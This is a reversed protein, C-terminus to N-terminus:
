EDYLGQVDKMGLDLMDQFDGAIGYPANILAFVAAETNGSSFVSYEDVLSGKPSAQNEMSKSKSTHEDMAILENWIKKVFEIPSNKSLETYQAQEQDFEEQTRKLAEALHDPSTTVMPSGTRTMPTVTKKSDVDPTESLPASPTDTQKGKFIKTKTGSKTSETTKPSSTGTIEFDENLDGLKARKNLPSEVNLSRKAAEEQAQKARAAKQAQAMAQSAKAVIQQALNDDNVRVFGICRTMQTKLKELDTLRLICQRKPVLALQDDFMYIMIKVRRKLVTEADELMKPTVKTQTQQNKEPSATPAKPAVQPPRAQAQQAAMQQIAPWNQGANSQAQVPMATANQVPRPQQQQQQQQQQQKHQQLLQALQEPKLKLQALQEATIPLDQRTASNMPQAPRQQMQAFPQGQVMNFNPRPTTNQMAAGQLSPPILPNHDSRGPMSTSPIPNDRKVNSMSMQHLMARNWVEEFLELFSRYVQAIKQAAMTAQPSKAMALGLTVAVTPWTGKQTVMKSGGLAQVVTFLHYLDVERGDVVPNSHFSKGHHNMLDTLARKFQEPSPTMVPPNSTNQVPKQVGMSQNFPQASLSPSSTGVQNQNHMNMMPNKAQASFNVGFNPVNQQVQPQVMGMQPSNVQQQVNNRQQALKQVLATQVRTLEQHARQLAQRENDPIATALKQEVERIRQQITRVFQVGQAMNPEQKAQGMNDQTPIANMQPQPVSTSAPTQMMMSPQQQVPQQQMAQQQMSQLLAAYQANPVVNPQTQPQQVSQQQEIIARLQVLQNPTLMGAKAKSAMDALIASMNNQAPPRVMNAANMANPMSAMPAPQAQQPQLMMNQSFQNTPMPQQVSSNKQNLLTQLQQASLSNLFDQQSKPFAQVDHQPQMAQQQQLLRVIQQQVGPDFKGGPTFGSM